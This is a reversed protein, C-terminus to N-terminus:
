IRLEYISEWEMVAGSLPLIDKRTAFTDFYITNERMKNDVTPVVLINDGEQRDSHIHTFHRRLPPPSTTTGQRIFSHVLHTKSSGSEETCLISAYHLPLTVRDKSM